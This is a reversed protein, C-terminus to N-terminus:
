IRAELMKRMESESLTAPNNKNGGRTLILDIDSKKIGYEGFKKIKLDNQMEELKEILIDCYKEISDKNVHEISDGNMIAGIKAYKRLANTNVDNDDQKRLLDITIKNGEAMLTGCVVGHPVDFFGGVASAFGHIVGLGANALTIGSILTAYAVAARTPVDDSKTTVAPVLNEIMYVLGKEALSDTMPSAKTSIYSELLQTFADMGCTATISPPCTVMFEPDIIAYNPILNDHRLSKKFGDEGVQRIVANKTAESGTGSTTPCAIFPIKRGDHSKTGVGELFHEVPEDYPIMASIAKGADLVSGGGVAVVVDIQNDKHSQVAQNIMAPTPEDDVSIEHWKIELTGFMDSLIQWKDSKALSEKGRVLLIERGFEPILNELESIKGPGFFITPIKAFKFSSDLGKMNNNGDFM